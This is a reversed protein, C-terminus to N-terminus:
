DIGHITESQDPGDPDIDLCVCVDLPGILCFNSRLITM